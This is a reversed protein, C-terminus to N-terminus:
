FEKALHMYSEYSHIIISCLRDIKVFDLEKKAFHEWYDLELNTIKDIKKIFRKFNQEYIM